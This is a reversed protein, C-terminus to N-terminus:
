DMIFYLNNQLFEILEKQTIESNDNFFTTLFKKSFKDYIEFKTFIRTSYIKLQYYTAEIIICVDNKTYDINTNFDNELLVKVVTRRINDRNM